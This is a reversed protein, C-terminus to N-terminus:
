GSLFPKLGLRLMMTIEGLSARALTETSATLSMEERSPSRLSMAMTSVLNDPDAQPKLMTIEGLFAKSNGPSTTLPTKPKLDGLPLDQILRGPFRQATLSKLTSM